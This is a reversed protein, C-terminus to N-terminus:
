AEQMAGIARDNGLRLPQLKWYTISRWVWEMPGYRFNKLWLTSFVWQSAIIACVILMQPGRSIHGFQAFGYGYFLISLLLSHTLYNTLAMRGLPALWGVLRRGFASQMLCVFLGLYGATLLVQGFQFLGGAANNVMMVDKSAPHAQITVATANIAFGVSVGVWAMTKFLTQHQENHRMRGTTVLWYGFLFLPLLGFLGAFPAEKLEELSEGTRYVVAPWYNPQTFAAIEKAEDKNREAKSEAREQAIHQIRATSTMAELDVEKEDEDEKEATLDVGDVKAKAVIKDAMPEAAIRESWQQQMAATDHSLAYYTGFGMMFVFPLSMLGLSFKLLSGPNNFRALKPKRMLLVYGLLMMGTLSYDRLIDGTWMLSAHLLGFVLLAAMRRSFMAVFPLGKEQARSLMVAFGMGFLLSFLRYFKGEVFVKVFWEAMFDTGILSRDFNGLYVIARNFWEINMMLIGILAFGRLVDVVAIRDAFALPKLPNGSTERSPEIATVAPLVASMATERETITIYTVM